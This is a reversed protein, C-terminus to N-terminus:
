FKIWNFKHDCKWQRCDEFALVIEDNNSTHTQRISFSARFVWNTFQTRERFASAFIAHLHAWGQSCISAIGYQVRWCGFEGFDSNRNTQRSFYKGYQLWIETYHQWIIPVITPATIGQYQMRLIYTCLELNAKRHHKGVYQGQDSSSFRVFKKYLGCNWNVGSM